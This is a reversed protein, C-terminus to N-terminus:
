LGKGYSKWSLSFEKPEPLFQQTHHNFRFNEHCFLNRMRIRLNSVESEKELLLLNSGGAFCSYFAGVGAGSKALLWSDLWLNLLKKEPLSIGKICWKPENWVYLTEKWFVFLVDFNSKSPPRALGKNVTPLSPNNLKWGCASAGRLSSLSMSLSLILFHHIFICCSWWHWIM